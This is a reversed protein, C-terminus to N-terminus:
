VTCFNKTSSIGNFYTEVLTQIGNVRKQHFKYNQFLFYQFFASFLTKQPFFNSKTTPLDFINKSAPAMNNVTGWGGWFVVNKPPPLTKKQALDNKLNLYHKKKFVDIKRHSKLNSIKEAGGWWLPAVRRFFDGIYWFVVNKGKYLPKRSSSGIFHHQTDFFTQFRIRRM